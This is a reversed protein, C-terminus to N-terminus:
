LDNEEDGLRRTERQLRNRDNIRKALSGHGDLEHFGRATYFSYAAASKETQLFIRCVQRESLFSEIAKMFATGIGKGQFDRSICFEEICYETGTYWHKIHGMSLGILREGDFYGLTLSYNQGTLDTIYADLQATDSWDDNWPENSFVDIFLQIISERNMSNLEKLEM